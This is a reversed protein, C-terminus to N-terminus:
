TVVILINYWVLLVYTLEFHIVTNCIQGYINKSAKYLLQIYTDISFPSFIILIYLWDKVHMMRSELFQQVNLVIDLINCICM